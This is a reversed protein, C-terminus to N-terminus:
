YFVSGPRVEPITTPHRNVITTAARGTGIPEAGDLSQELLISGRLVPLEQALRDLEPISELRLACQLRGGASQRLDM